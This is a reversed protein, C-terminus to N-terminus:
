AIARTRGTEFLGSYTITDTVTALVTVGDTDYVKWEETTPVPGTWTVTLEVIKKAAATYWIVSTPFPGAPSTTSYAGTAFGEAPGQDIFHILQRLIKHAGETLGTGGTRLNFVGTADRGKLEGGNNTLAGVVSPDAGNDELRVEEEILPGPSRDPTLPM